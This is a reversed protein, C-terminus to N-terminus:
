GMRRACADRVKEEVGKWRSILLTTEEAESAVESMGEPLVIRQPPKPRQPTGSVRILAISFRGAM